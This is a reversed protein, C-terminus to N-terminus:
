RENEVAKLAALCISYAVTAESGNFHLIKKNRTTRFQAVYFVRGGESYSQFLKFIGVRRGGRPGREGLASLVQEVVLWAAAIDTSYNPLPVWANNDKSTGVYGSKLREVHHWGMVKTAILADLERGPIERLETNVAM